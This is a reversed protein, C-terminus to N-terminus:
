SVCLIKRTKSLGDYDADIIRRAVDPEVRMMRGNGVDYLFVVAADCVDSAEDHIARVVVILKDHLRGDDDNEKRTATAASSHIRVFDECVSFREALLEENATSIRGDRGVDYNMGPGADCNNSKRNVSVSVSVTLTVERGEEEEEGKESHAKQVDAVAETFSRPLVYERPPLYTMKRCVFPYPSEDKEEEDGSEDEYTDDDNEDSDYTDNDDSAYVSDDEYTDNDDSTDFMTYEAKRLVPGLVDIWADPHLQVLEGNTDIRFVSTEEVPREFEADIAYTKRRMWIHVDSTEPLAKKCLRKLSRRIDPLRDSPMRDDAYRNTRSLKCMLSAYDLVFTTGVRPVITVRGDMRALLDDCLVDVAHRGEQGEQGEETTKPWPVGFADGDLHWTRCVPCKKCDLHTLKDSCDMCMAVHCFPCRTHPYGEVNKKKRTGRRGGQRTSEPVLSRMCVVCELESCSSSSSSSSSSTWADCNKWFAVHREVDVERNNVIVTYQPAQTRVLICAVRDPHLPDYSEIARRSTVIGFACKKKKAEDEKLLLIVESLSKCRTFEHVVVTPRSDHIAKERDNEKDQPGYLARRALATATSNARRLEPYHSFHM